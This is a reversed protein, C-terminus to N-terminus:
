VCEAVSSRGPLTHDSPMQHGGPNVDKYCPTSTYCCSAVAIQPRVWRSTIFTIGKWRAEYHVVVRDGEKALAGGGVVTDYYKLGQPGEKFESEPVKRRRGKKLDKNFSFTPGAEASQVTGAM